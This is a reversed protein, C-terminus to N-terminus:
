EILNVERLEEIISIIENKHGTHGAVHSALLLKLRDILENANDWYKYDTKLNKNLEMFNVKIAEGFKQFMPVIVKCFKMNRKDSKMNSNPQNFKKHINTLEIIRRYNKLDHKGYHKPDKLFLLNMLGFTLPFLEDCVSICKDNLFVRTEGIFYSDNKSRIGYLSDHQKTNIINLFDNLTGLTLRNLSVKAIPARSQSAKPKCKTMSEENKPIQLSDHKEHNENNNAKDESNNVLKHLPELIPKYQINLAQDMENSQQNLTKYKMRINKITEILQRKVRQEDMKDNNNKQNSTVVGLSFVVIVLM